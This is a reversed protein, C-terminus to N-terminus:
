QPESALPAGSHRPSECTASAAGDRTMGAMDLISLVAPRNTRIEGDRIPQAHHQPLERLADAPTIRKGTVHEIHQVFAIALNTGDLLERMIRAPRTIQLM